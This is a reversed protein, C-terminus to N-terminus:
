VILVLLVFEDQLSKQIFCLFHILETVAQERALLRLDHHGYVGRGLRGLSAEGWGRFRLLEHVVKVMLLTGRETAVGSEKVLPCNHSLALVQMVGLHDRLAGDCGILHTIFGIFLQLVLDNPHYDLIYGHWLHLMIIIM